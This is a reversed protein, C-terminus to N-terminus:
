LRVALAVQYFTIFEVICGIGNKALAEEAVLLEVRERCSARGIEMTGAKVAEESLKGIADMLEKPPHGFNEAHKFIPLACTQVGTVCHLRIGDEAQFFFLRRSGVSRSTCISIRNQPMQWESRCETRFSHLSNM